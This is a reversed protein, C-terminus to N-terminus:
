ENIKIKSKEIKVGYRTAGYLKVNSIQCYPLLREDVEERLAKNIKTIYQRLPEIGMGDKWKEKLDDAKFPQGWYIKKYDDAMKDLAQRSAFDVLVPFCDICELCYSREPYKCHETKQRLLAAYIMLQVPIMEVMHSGVKVTREKLNVELDPQLTSIDIERQGESILESFDREHFEIKGGLRIFPLEALEIRADDTNLEIVTGDQKKFRIVKNKNPKYFFEPNSEFEQNVLVHYLKDWPRGFLQLAAGLYFGMTKRGGTISCHLRSGSDKTKERIFNTILNGAIKNDREDRIDQLAEGNHDKLVIISDSKLPIEPLNYEEKFEKLINRTFLTEEICGKGTLTTIIFIEDPFVPPHKTILAWLTETIIQPTAGAVFILIEKFSKEQM